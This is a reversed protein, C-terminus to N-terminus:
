MGHNKETIHKQAIWEQVLPPIDMDWTIEPLKQPNLLAATEITWKESHFEIDWREGQWAGFQGTLIDGLILTRGDTAPGWEETVIRNQEHFSYADEKQLPFQIKEDKWYLISETFNYTGIEVEHHYITANSIYVGIQSLM